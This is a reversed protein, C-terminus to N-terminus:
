RDVKCSNSGPVNHCRARKSARCADSLTVFYLIKSLPLTKTTISCNISHVDAPEQFTLSQLRLITTWIEFLLRRTTNLGLRTYRFGCTAYWLSLSTSAISPVDEM